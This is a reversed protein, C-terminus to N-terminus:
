QIDNSPLLGELIYSKMHMNKEIDRYAFEQNYLRYVGETGKTGKHL